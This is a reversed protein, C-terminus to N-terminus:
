KKDGRHTDYEEKTVKAISSNQLTVHSGTADDKLSVSGSDNKDVETTYYEKGNTPDTVRYYTTSGCGALTMASFLFVTTLVKRM